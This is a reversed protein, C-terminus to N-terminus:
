IFWLIYFIVYRCQYYPTDYAIRWGVLKKDDKFSRVEVGHCRHSINEIEKNLGLSHLVRVVNPSLQIGMGLGKSVPVKEFVTFPIHRLELAKALSLGGIGAGIVAIHKQM